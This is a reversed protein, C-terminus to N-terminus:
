DNGIPHHLIRNPGVDNSNPGGLICIMLLNENYVGTIANPVSLGGITYTVVCLGV